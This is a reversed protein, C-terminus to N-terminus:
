IKELKFVISSKPLYSIKVIDWINVHPWHKFKYVFFRDECRIKSVLRGVYFVEDVRCTYVEKEWVNIESNKTKILILYVFFGMLFFLWIVLILAIVLWFSNRLFIAIICFVFFMILSIWMWFKDIFLEDNLIKKDEENLYDKQPLIKTISMINFLFLVKVYYINFKKNWSISIQSNYKIM